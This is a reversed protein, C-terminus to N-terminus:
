NQVILKSTSANQRIVYVGNSLDAIQILNRGDVLIIERVLQRALSYIGLIENQEGNISFTENAPNPFLSSVQSDFEPIGHLTDGVTMQELM